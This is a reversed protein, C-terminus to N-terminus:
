IFFKGFSSSYESLTEQAFQSKTLETQMLAHARRLAVTVDSSANLLVEDHSLKEQGKRRILGSERNGEQVGAFIIERERRKAAEANRKAQLQAKRFQSRASYFYTDASLELISESQVHRKLNEGLRTVQTALDTRDREKDSPKRRAVPVWGVHITPDEVEQRLLEFCEEQEKLSQHIEAGLEVRADSTLAGSGSQIPLKALRTILQQTQKHAEFLPRLQANFDQSIM